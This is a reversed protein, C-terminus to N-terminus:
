CNNLYLGRDKPMIGLSDLFNAWRAKAPAQEMHSPSHRAKFGYETPFGINPKWEKNILTPM